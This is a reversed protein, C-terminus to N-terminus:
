KIMEYVPNGPLTAHFRNNPVQLSAICMAKVAASPEYWPLPMIKLVSDFFDDIYNILDFIIEWLNSMFANQELFKLQERQHLPQLSVLKM